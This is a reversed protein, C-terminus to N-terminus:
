IQFKDVHYVSISFKLIKLYCTFIRSLVELLNAKSKYKLKGVIIFFTPTMSRSIILM